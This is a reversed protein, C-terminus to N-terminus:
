ETHFEILEQPLPVVDAQRLIRQQRYLLVQGPTVPSWKLPNPLMGVLLALQARNLKDPPVHYYAESAAYIGYIGPGMEILNVYLELIRKKELLCEMLVTYYAEIGKRIYSRGQWLFVTRACQMTITSAGRVPKKTRKARKVAARIERWDFGNHSFFRQDEAILLFHILDPPTLELPIWQQRIPPAQSGRAKAELWRQGMMPTRWPNIFRLAFVELAPFLLLIALILLGWRTLTKM